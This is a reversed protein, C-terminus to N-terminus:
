GAGVRELVPPRETPADGMRYAARLAAEARDAAAEDAAHVIGLLGGSSGPGALDTFGVRPDVPDEPRTRGGGLGIVALGLARTAIGAVTGDQRVARRVPAAPLHAAPRELLDGPGGLAAVMRGFGEAARGSALARELREAASDRDPALGGVVLMEAGLAVTVAHFRPERRAGTLYDIAYAVEVANGAASALPADM